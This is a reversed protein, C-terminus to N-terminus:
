KAVTKFKATTELVTSEVGTGLVCAVDNSFQILTWTKTKANSLLSYNSNTESDKGIWNPKEEYDKVLVPLIVELKDCYVSKNATTGSQQALSLVPLFLVSLFLKRM